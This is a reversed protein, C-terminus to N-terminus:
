LSRSFWSLELRRKKEDTGGLLNKLKEIVNDGGAKALTSIASDLAKALLMELIM